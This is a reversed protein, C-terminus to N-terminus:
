STTSLNPPVNTWYSATGCTHHLPATQRGLYRLGERARLLHEHEPRVYVIQIPRPSVRLSQEMRELVCQLTTKGFPNFMWFVTGESYDIDAADGVQVEIASTRWKRYTTVCHKVSPLLRLENALSEIM